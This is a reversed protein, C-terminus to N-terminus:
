FVFLRLRRYFLCEPFHLGCSNFFVFSGVALFFGEVRTLVAGKTLFGRALKLLQFSGDDTQTTRARFNGFVAYKGTYALNNEHVIRRDCFLVQACAREQGYIINTLLSACKENQPNKRRKRCKYRKTVRVSKAM